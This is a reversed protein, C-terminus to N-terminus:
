SYRIHISFETGTSKGSLLQVFLQLLYVPGVFAYCHLVLLHVLSDIFSCVSFPLLSFSM